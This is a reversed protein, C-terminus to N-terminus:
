VQFLAATFATYILTSKLLRTSSSLYWVHESVLINREMIYMNVCQAFENVKEHYIENSYKLNECNIVFGADIRQIACDTANEHAM